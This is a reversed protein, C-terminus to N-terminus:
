NQDNQDRSRLSQISGEIRIPHFRQKYDNISDLKNNSGVNISDIVGLKYFKVGARGFYTMAEFEVQHSPFEGPLLDTSNVKSWQRSFEGVFDCYLFSLDRNEKKGIFLVGVGNHIYDLMLQFSENPRTVRGAAAAHANRYRSFGNEIDKTSSDKDLIVTYQGSRISKTITRQHGKSFGYFLQEQSVSIDLILNTTSYERKFIHGLHNEHFTNPYKWVNFEYIQGSSSHVSIEKTLFDISERQGPGVSILPRPNRVRQDPISKNQIKRLKAESATLCPVVARLEGESFIGFSQDTLNFSTAYYNLFHTLHNLTGGTALCFSDWTSPPIETRRRVTFNM